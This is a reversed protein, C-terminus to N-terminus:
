GKAIWGEPDFPDDVMAVDDYAAAPEPVDFLSVTIGGTEWV